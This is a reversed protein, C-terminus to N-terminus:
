NALKKKSANQALFAFLTYFIVPIAIILVGFIPDDFLKYTGYIFFLLIVLTALIVISVNKKIYIFVLSILLLAILLIGVFVLTMLFGETPLDRVKMLKDTIGMESSIQLLGKLDKIQQPLFSFSIFSLIFGAILATLTSLILFLIRM